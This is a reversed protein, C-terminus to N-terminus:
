QLGEQVKWVADNFSKGLKQYVKVAYRERSNFYTYLTKETTSIREPIKNTVRVPKFDANVIEAEMNGGSM